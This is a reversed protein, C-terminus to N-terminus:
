GCFVVIFTIDDISDYNLVRWRRLVAEMLVDCAEEVGRGEWHEEVLKVVEVNTMVEFLGDSGIVFIVKSAGELHHIVFSPKWTIGISEFAQDGISRSLSLGPLDEGKGWVRLPGFEEGREDLSRGVVGNKEEIRAREAPNEPRHDESLQLVENNKLVIVRSDGVNCCYVTSDWILVVNLTSGSYLYDLDSETMQGVTTKLARYMVNELGFSTQSSVLISYEIDDDEKLASYFNPIFCSTLFESVKEGQKGHGDCVGFVHMPRGRYIRSGAMFSDQNKKFCNEPDYGRRTRIGFVFREPDKPPPDHARELSTCNRKASACPKPTHRHGVPLNPRPPKGAVDLSGSRGFKPKTKSLCFNEKSERGCISSKQFRDAREGECESNVLLSKQHDFEKFLSCHKPLNPSPQGKHSFLLGNTNPPALRLPSQLLTMKARSQRNMHIHTQVLASAMFSTLQKPPYVKSSQFSAKKTFYGNHHLTERKHGALEGDRARPLANENSPLPEKQGHDSETRQCISRKGVNFIRQKLKVFSSSENQKPKPSNNLEHLRPRLPRLREKDPERDRRARGIFSGLLDADNAPLRDRKLRSGSNPLDILLQKFRKPDKPEVFELEISELHDARKATKPSRNSFKCHGPSYAQM